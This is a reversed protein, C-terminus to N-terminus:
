VFRHHWSSKLPKKWSSLFDSKTQVLNDFVVTEDNITGSRYANAFDASTLLETEGNESQYAFNMREFFSVGLNSELYKIFKVSSDISCGSASSKSEDVMLYLFIRNLVEGTAQLQNNHSTWHTAFKEIEMNCWDVEKDSLKRDCQYIWVKSNDSFGELKQM